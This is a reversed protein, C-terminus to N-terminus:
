EFKRWEDINENGHYFHLKPLDEDKRNYHKKNKESYAWSLNDCVSLDGDLVTVSFVLTKLHPMKRAFALTPISNNGSLELLELNPLFELVSFDSINPCNEIRLAKLTHSLHKLDSIDSLQRNNNLYLCQLRTLAECGSLNQIKSFSLDLTDLNSLEAFLRFDVGDFRTLRMSKLNKAENLNNLFKYNGCYQQLSVLKSLDVSAIAKSGERENERIDLSLLNPLTYLVSLDYKIRGSTKLCAYESFPLRLELAIHQISPCQRLFSFISLNQVFVKTIEAKDIYEVLDDLGLGEVLLADHHSFPYTVSVFCKGDIYSSSFQDFYM